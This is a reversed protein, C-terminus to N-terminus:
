GDLISTLLQETELESGLSMGADVLRELRDKRGSLEVHNLANVLAVTATDALQKM